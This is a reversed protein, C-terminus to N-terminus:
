NRKYKKLFDRMQKIETKISEESNLFSRLLVNLRELDIEEQKDLKEGQLKRKALERRKCALDSRSFDELNKIETTKTKKM